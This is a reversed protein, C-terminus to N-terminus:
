SLVGTSKLARYSVYVGGAAAGWKAMQAAGQTAEGTKDAAYGYGWLAAVGLGAWVIPAVM